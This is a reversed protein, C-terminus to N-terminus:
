DTVDRDGAATGGAFVVGYSCTSSGVGGDSLVAGSGGNLSVLVTSYESRDYGTM